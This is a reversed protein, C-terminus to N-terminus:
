SSQKPQKAIIVVGKLEVLSEKVVLSEKAVMGQRVEVMGDM